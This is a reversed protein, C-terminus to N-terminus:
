PSVFRTPWACVKFRSFTNSDGGVQLSCEIAVITLLSLEAQRTTNDHKFPTFRVKISKDLMMPHQLRAFDFQGLDFRRM